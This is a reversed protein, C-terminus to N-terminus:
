KDTDMVIFPPKVFPSYHSSAELASLIRKKAELERSVYLAGYAYEIGCGNAMVGDDSHLVSFDSQIEFVKDKIGIIFIGGTESNNSIESYGFKKFADRATEAFEIAFDFPNKSEILVQEPFEVHYQLIQGMRFSSTYAFIVGNKKFIKPMSSIQQVLNSSGAASDAGIYAKGNEEVGIICTM